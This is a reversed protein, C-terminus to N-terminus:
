HVRAQIGRLWSKDDYVSYCWVSEEVEVSKPGHRPARIILALQALCRQREASPRTQDIIAEASPYFKQTKRARIQSLHLGHIGRLINKDNVHRRMGIVVILQIWHVKFLVCKEM